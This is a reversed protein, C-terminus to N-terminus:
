TLEDWALGEVRQVKLAVLATLLDVSMPVGAVVYSMRDDPDKPVECACVHRDVPCRVGNRAVVGVDKGTSDVSHLTRIM